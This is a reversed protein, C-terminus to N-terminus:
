GSRRRVELGGGAVVLGLGLIGAVTLIWPAGAAKAAGSQPLLTTGGDTKRVCFDIGLVVPTDPFVNAQLTKQSTVVYDEGPMATVSWTGYGVAALGYSGDDGTQLFLNETKDYSVFNIPIGVLPTGDSCIGDGNPDARVTGRITSYVRNDSEEDQATAVAAALSLILALFLAPLVKRSM